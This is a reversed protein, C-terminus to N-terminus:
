YQVLSGNQCGNKYLGFYQVSVNTLYDTVTASYAMTNAGRALYVLDVDPIDSKFKSYATIKKSKYNVFISLQNGKEEAVSVNIIPKYIDGDKFNVSNVTKESYDFTGVIETGQRIEVICGALNGNTACPNYQLDTDTIGGNSITTGLQGKVSQFDNNLYNELVSKCSSNGDSCFDANFFNNYLMPSAIEKSLNVTIKLDHWTYPVLDKRCSFLSVVVTTVLLFALTFFTKKM